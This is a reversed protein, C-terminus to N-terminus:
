GTARETAVPAVLRKQTEAVQLTVDADVRLAPSEGTQLGIAAFFERQASIEVDVHTRVRSVPGVRARNTRFSESSFLVPFSMEFKVAAEFREATSDAGLSKGALAM